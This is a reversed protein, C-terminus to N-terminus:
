KNLQAKAFTNFAEENVNITEIEAQLLKNNKYDMTLINDKLIINSFAEWQYKRSPFIRKEVESARFYFVKKQLAASSLLFLVADVISLVPITFVFAFPLFFGSGFSYEQYSTKSILLRYGAYLAIIILGVVGKKWLGENFLLYIFFIAHLAALLLIILRYSREKENKLTLEFTEM